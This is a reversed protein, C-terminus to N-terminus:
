THKRYEPDLQDGRAIERMEEWSMPAELSGAAGALSEVDPYKPARLEVSGEDGIVFSLKDGTSIGLHKRVAVPITVQGKSTITSTVEKM